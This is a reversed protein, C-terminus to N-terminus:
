ASLPPARAPQLAWAFLPKLSQYSLEPFMPPDATASRLSPRDLLISYFSFSCYHCDGAQHDHKSPNHNTTISVSLTGATTCVEVTETLQYSKIVTKTIVPSLVALLMFAVAWVAIQRLQNKKLMAMFHIVDTEAILAGAM